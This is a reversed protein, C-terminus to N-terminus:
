ASQTVTDIIGFFVSLAGRTAILRHWTIERIPLRRLCHASKWRAQSRHYDWYRQRKRQPSEYAFCEPLLHFKRIAERLEM